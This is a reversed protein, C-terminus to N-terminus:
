LLSQLAKWPPLTVHTLVISLSLPINWVLCRTYWLWDCDWSHFGMHERWVNVHTRGIGRFIWTMSKCCQVLVSGAASQCLVKMARVPFRYFWHLAVINVCGTARVPVRWITSLATPVNFSTGNLHVHRCRIFCHMKVVRVKLRATWLLAIISSTWPASYSAKPLM